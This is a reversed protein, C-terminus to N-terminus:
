GNTCKACLILVDNKIKTIHPMEGKLIKNHGVIRIKITKKIKHETELKHDFAQEPSHIKFDCDQCIYLPVKQELPIEVMELKFKIKCKQCSVPKVGGNQQVINGATDKQFATPIKSDANKLTVYKWDM